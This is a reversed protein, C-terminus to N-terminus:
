ARAQKTYVNFLYEGTVLNSSRRIDSCQALQVHFSLVLFHIHTTKGLANCLEEGKPRTKFERSGIEGADFARTCQPPDQCFGEWSGTWPDSNLPHRTQVSVATSGLDPLHDNSRGLFDHGSPAHM